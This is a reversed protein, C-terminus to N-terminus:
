VSEVDASSSSQDEGDFEMLGFTNPSPRTFVQGNRVYVGLSGSLSARAQKNKHDEGLARLIESVHLPKGADRLIQLARGVKSKPRIDSGNGASVGKQLIKLTERYAEIASQVKDLESKLRLAEEEKQKLRREIDRVAKM